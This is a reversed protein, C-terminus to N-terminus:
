YASYSKEEVIGSDLLDNIQRKIKARQDNTKYVSRALAVFNEGFDGSAECDRIDDEIDWLQENVSKLEATLAAVEDHFPIASSQVERLLKLERQVNELQRASKLREAKIELITIKDLLEALAIEVKVGPM